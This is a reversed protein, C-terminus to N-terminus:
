VTPEFTAYFYYDINEEKPGRAALVHFDQVDFYEDDQPSNEPDKLHILELSGDEKYTAKFIPEGDYLEEFLHYNIGYYYKITKKYIPKDTTLSRNENCILRKNSDYLYRNKFTLVENRYERDIEIIYSDFTTKQRLIVVKNDRQIVNSLNSLISMEDEGEQVYYTIAYLTHQVFSEIKKVREVESYIKEYDGIELAQSATISKDYIDTYTIKM